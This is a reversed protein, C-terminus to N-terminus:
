RMSRLSIDTAKQPPTSEMTQISAPLAQAPVSSPMQTAAQITSAMAATSSKM